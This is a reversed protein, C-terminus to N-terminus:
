ENMIEERLALYNDFAEDISQEDLLYLQMEEAFADLIQAYYGATGQEALIKSSFRYAVGDITVSEQYVKM